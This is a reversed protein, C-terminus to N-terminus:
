SVQSSSINDFLIRADRGKQFQFQREATQYETNQTFNLNYEPFIIILKMCFYFVVHVPLSEPFYTM